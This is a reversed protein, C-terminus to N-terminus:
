DTGLVGFGRWVLSVRCFGICIGGAARGVKEHQATSCSLKQQVTVDHSSCTTFPHALEGGRGM